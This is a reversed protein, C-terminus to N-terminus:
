EEGDASNLLGGALLLDDVSLFEQARDPLPEGAATISVQEVGEFQALTLVVCSDAIILSVGSLRGYEESFDVYVTTGVQRWSRLTVRRPFPSVLEPSEPGKLLEELASEVPRDEDLLRPEGQVVSDALTDEGAAFYLVPVEQEEAREKLVCGALIACCVCALICIRRM